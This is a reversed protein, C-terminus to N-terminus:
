YVYSVSAGYKIEKINTDYLEGNDLLESEEEYDVSSFSYFGSVSYGLSDGFTFNFTSELRADKENANVYIVRSSILEDFTYFNGAIKSVKFGVSFLSLRLESLLSLKSAKDSEPYEYLYTNSQSVSTKSQEEYSVEFKFKQSSYGVGVGQITSKLKIKSVEPDNKAGTSPNYLISSVDGSAERRGHYVGFDIGSFTFSVGYIHELYDLETEHTERNLSPVEDVHFDYFNHYEAKKISVGFGGLDLSGGFTKTKGNTETKRQYSSTEFEEVKTGDEQDYLLDFTIGPGKGSRYFNNKDLNVETNVGDLIGGTLIDQHKKLTTKKHEIALFGHVRKHLIAPNVTRVSPFFSSIANQAFISPSLFILINWILFKM